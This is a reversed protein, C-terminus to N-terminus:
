RGCCRKAMAAAGLGPATSISTIEASGIIMWMGGYAAVRGDETLVLYRALHNELETYFANKPWPLTFGAHEIEVVAPVDEATMPRIEIVSM